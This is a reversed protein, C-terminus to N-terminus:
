RAVSILSSSSASSPRSRWMMCDFPPAIVASAARSCGIWVSSEPGTPPLIPASATDAESSRGFRIQTSM